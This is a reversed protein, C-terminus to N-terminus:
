GYCFYTTGLHSDYMRVAVGRGQPFNAQYLISPDGFVRNGNLIWVAVRACTSNPVMNSFRSGYVGAYQDSQYIVGSITNPYKSSAVRNVVVEAVGAKWNWPLWSSGAENAVIKALLYMDDFTYRPYSLGLTKIKEDRQTAYARGNIFDGNTAAEIMLKSYDITTYKNYKDWIEDAFVKNYKLGLSEIKENRANAYEIVADRDGDKAAQIMKSMYDVKPNFTAAASIMLSMVVLAVMIPKILRKM